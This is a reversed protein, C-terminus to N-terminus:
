HTECLSRTRRMDRMEKPFWKTTETITETTIEMTSETTTETINMTINMTTEMTDMTGEM